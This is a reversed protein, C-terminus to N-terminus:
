QYIVKLKNTLIQFIQLDHKFSCVEFDESSRIQM